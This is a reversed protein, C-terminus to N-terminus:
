YTVVDIRSVTLGVVKLITPKKNDKRGIRLTGTTGDNPLTFTRGVIPEDENLQFMLDVDSGTNIIKGDMKITFETYESM